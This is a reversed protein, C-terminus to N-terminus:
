PRDGKELVRRYVDLVRAAVTENSLRGILRRGNTRAREHGRLVDHIAAGVAAPTPDVVLCRDAGAIVDRVDGVDTSVIPVNCAMAEKIVNPSGERASTLLVVDAANLWLPIEEHPRGHVVLPELSTGHRRAAELGASALDFRKEPRSPDAVFLGYAGAPDLGLRRRAEAPPLPAFACLDVGNPIIDAPLGLLDRLEASKVIAADARRAVWRSVPRLRRSAIDTGCFSVVVPLRTQLCAPVGNYGFHAHILDYRGTEVLRRVQFVGKILQLRSRRVDLFLIDSEVGLRELAAVQGAVFAGLGPDEATPYISTVVLVRV